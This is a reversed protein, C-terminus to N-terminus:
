RQPCFTLISVQRWAGFISVWQAYSTVGAAKALKPSYTSAVTAWYSGVSQGAAIDACLSKGSAILDADSQAAITTGAGFQRVAALFSATSSAPAVASASAQSSTGGISVLVLAGLMGAAVYRRLAAIVIATVTTGERTAKERAAKWLETPIRIARAPTNM